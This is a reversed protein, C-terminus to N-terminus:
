EGRESCNVPPPGDDCVTWTCAKFYVHLCDPYPETPAAADCVTWTCADFYVHHCDPYPEAPEAACGFVVMALACLGWAASGIAYDRLDTLTDRVREAAWYEYSDPTAEPDGDDLVYIVPYMDNEPPLQKWERLWLLLWFPGCVFGM